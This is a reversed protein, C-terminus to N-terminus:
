VARTWYRSNQSREITYQRTILKAAGRLRRGRYIAYRTASSSSACPSLNAAKGVFECEDYEPSQGGTVIPMCNITKQSRPYGPLSEGASTPYDFQKWLLGLRTRFRLLTSGFKYSGRATPLLQYAVLAYPGSHGHIAERPNRLEMQPPYEDKLIFTVKRGTRNAIKVAVENEAGMAFRDEVLHELRFSTRKESIFYDVATVAVLVMDYLVHLIARRPEAM